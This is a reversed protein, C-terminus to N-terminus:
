STGMRACAAPCNQKRSLGQLQLFLGLSQSAGENSENPHPTPTKVTNGEMEREKWSLATLLSLSHRSEEVKPVSPCFM